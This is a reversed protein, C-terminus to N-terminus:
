NWAGCCGDRQQPTGFGPAPEQPEEEPVEEFYRECGYNLIELYLSQPFHSAPRFMPIPTNTNLQNHLATHTSCNSPNSNYADLLAHCRHNAIYHRFLRALIAIDSYRSTSHLIRSIGSIGVGAREELDTLSCSIDCEM